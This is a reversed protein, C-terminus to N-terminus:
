LILLLLFSIYIYYMYDHDKQQTWQSYQYEIAIENVLQHTYGQAREAEHLHKPFDVKLAREWVVPVM